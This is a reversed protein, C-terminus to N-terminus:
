HAVSCFLSLSSIMCEVLDAESCLCESISSDFYEPFTSVESFYKSFFESFYKSFYKVDSDLEEGAM